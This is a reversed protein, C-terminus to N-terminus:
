KFVYKTLFNIVEAVLSIGAAIATLTGTVSYTQVKKVAYHSLDGLNAYKM